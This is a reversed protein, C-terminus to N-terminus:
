VYEEVDEEICITEILKRVVLYPDANSSPRRDELYGVKLEKVGMPIRISAERTGYGWSFNDMSSTENIGTLRKDNDKGYIELHEKHTKELKRCAEEIMEISKGRKINDQNRMDETSFNVHMGSGNWDNSEVPKPDINMGIGYEEGLRYLIYRSVWLQDSGELASVPGVQYEWQGLMVESNIGSINIGAKLCLDLHKYAIERGSKVHNYGVGCYYDGQPKPYSEVGEPWGLPKDTNKDIMVYEQEFGYWTGKDNLIMDELGKRNNSELPSGESTYTDCIVLFDGQFPDNYVSRPKLIVESNGTVAQKTSSGDYNWDPLNLENGDSVIIHELIKTKSRLTQPNNGDLWIYEIKYKKSPPKLYDQNSM